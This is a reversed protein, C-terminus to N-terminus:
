TQGTELWVRVLMDQVEGCITEMDLGDIPGELVGPPDLSLCVIM